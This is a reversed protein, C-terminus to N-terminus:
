HRLGGCERLYGVLQGLPERSDDLPLVMRCRRLDRAVDAIPPLESESTEGHEEVGVGVIEDALKFGLSRRV